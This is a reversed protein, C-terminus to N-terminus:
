TQNLNVIENIRKKFNQKIFIKCEPFSFWHNRNSLNSDNFFSELNRKCRLNSLLCIQANMRTKEFFFVGYDVKAYWYYLLKTCNLFCNKLDKWALFNSNILYHPLCNTPGVDGIRALNYSPYINRISIPWKRTTTWMM